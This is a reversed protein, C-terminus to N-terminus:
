SWSWSWLIPRQGLCWGWPSSGVRWGGIGEHGSHCAEHRWWSENDDQDLNKSIIQTSKHDLIILVCYVATFVAPITGDFPSSKSWFLNFFDQTLGFPQFFRTDVWVGEFSMSWGKLVRSSANPAQMNGFSFCDCHLRVDHPALQHMIYYMIIYLIYSCHGVSPYRWFAKSPCVKMKEVFIKKALTQSVDWISMEEGWGLVGGKRTSRPTAEAYRRTGFIQFGHFDVGSDLSNISKGIAPFIQKLRQYSIEHFKQLFYIQSFCWKPFSESYCVNVVPWVCWNRGKYRYLDSQRMVHLRSIFFCPVERKDSGASCIEEPRLEGSLVRSRLEANGALSLNTRLMRAHHRYDSAKARGYRGWLLNEVEAAVLNNPLQAPSPMPGAPSAPSIGGIGQCFHLFFPLLTLASPHGCGFM